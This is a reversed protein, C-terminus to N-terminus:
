DLGKPAEPPGSSRALSVVKLLFFGALGAGAGGVLYSAFAAMGLEQLGMIGGTVLFVAALCCLAAAVAFGLLSHGARRSYAPLHVTVAEAVTESLFKKLGGVVAETYRQVVPTNELGELVLQRTRALFPEIQQRLAQDVTELTLGKIRTLVTDAHKQVIEEVTALITQRAHELAPEMQRKLIEEVSGLVARQTRLVLEDLRRPRDAATEPVAPQDM